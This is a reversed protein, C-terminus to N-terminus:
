KTVRFAGKSGASGSGLKKWWQTKEAGTDGGGGGGKGGKVTVGKGRKVVVSLGSSVGKRGGGPFKEKKKTNTDSDVDSDDDGSQRSRKKSTSNSAPTDSTTSESSATPQSPANRVRIPVVSYAQEWQKRHLRYIAMTARADTVQDVCM